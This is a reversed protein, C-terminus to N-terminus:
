AGSLYGHWCGGLKKCAPHGEQWGVLLTLASFAFDKTLTKAFDTLLLFVTLLFCWLFLQWVDCVIFVFVSAIHVRHIFFWCYETFLGQFCRHSPQTCVCQGECVCKSNWEGEIDPWDDDVNQGVACCLLQEYRVWCIYSALFVFIIMRPHIRLPARECTSLSTFIGSLSHCVVLVICPM